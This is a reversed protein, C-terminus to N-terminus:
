AAAKMKRKAIAREYHILLEGCVSEWDRATVRSMGEKGMATALEREAVLTLVSQRLSTHDGPSYLMGTVGHEILDIPGGVAPAIVPLSAAMGEQIVQCFTENEGTTVLLDLSAMAEGLSQGSLHGTFTAGPLMSSLKQRSPGEGIVVLQVKKDFLEEIGQLALLREVQKEPALRGVYGIAVDGTRLGWNRRLATSRLSPNFNRHDVGRGWHDVHTVGLSNLYRISSTSPALNVDSRTHIRRLRKEALTRIFNFGYFSAFGTVDTQYVSVTPIDLSNAIKNVQWGLHYPSALHIVDPGFGLIVKKLQHSTVTAIDITARSHLSIASTRFIRHGDFETPGEGPAIVLVQHGLNRLYSM